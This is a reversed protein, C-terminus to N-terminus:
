KIFFVATLSAELNKVDSLTRAVLHIANVVELHSRLFSIALRARLYADQLPFFTLMEAWWFRGSYEYRLDHIALGPHMNPSGADRSALLPGKYLARHCM